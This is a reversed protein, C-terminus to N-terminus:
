NESTTKKQKSILEALENPMFNKLLWVASLYIGMELIRPLDDNEAILLSPQEKYEVGVMKNFQPLLLEADESVEDLFEQCWQRLMGLFGEYTKLFYTVRKKNGYTGERYGDVVGSIPIERERLSFIIFMKCLEDVPLVENLEKSSHAEKIDPLLRNLVSSSVNFFDEGLLFAQRSVIGARELYYVFHGAVAKKLSPMKNKSDKAETKPLLKEDLADRLRSIDQETTRGYWWFIFSAEMSDMYGGEYFHMKKLAAFLAHLDFESEEESLSDKNEEFYTYLQDLVTILFQRFHFFQERESEVDDPFLQNYFSMSKRIREFKDQETIAPQLMSATIEIQSM